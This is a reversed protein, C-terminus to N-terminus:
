GNGTERQAVSEPELVITVSRPRRDPAAAGDAVPGVTPGRLISYLIPRYVRDQARSAGSARLRGEM